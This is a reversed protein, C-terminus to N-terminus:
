GRFRDSRLTSISMSECTRRPLDAHALRLEELALDSNKKMPAAGINAITMPIRLRVNRGMALVLSIRRFYMEPRSLHATLIMGTTGSTSTRFCRRPDSGERLWGREITTLLAEKRTIPLRVLDERGRVADPSVGAVSFASRHYPVNQAADRVLSRVVRDVDALSKGFGLRAIRTLEVGRRRLVVLASYKKHM